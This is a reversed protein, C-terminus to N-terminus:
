ERDGGDHEEEKGISEDQDGDDGEETAPHLAQGTLEGSKSPLQSGQGGTEQMEEDGEGKEPFQFLFLLEVEEFERSCLEVFVAFPEVM